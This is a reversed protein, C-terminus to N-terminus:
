MKRKKKCPCVFMVTLHFSSISRHGFCQLTTDHMLASMSFWSSCSQTERKWVLNPLNSSIWLCLLGKWKRHKPVSSATGMKWALRFRPLCSHLAWTSIQISVAIFGPPLGSELDANVSGSWFQCCKDTSLSGVLTGSEDRVCCAYVERPSSKSYDARPRKCLIFPLFQKWILCCTSQDDQQVSTAENIIQHHSLLVPVTGACVAELLADELQGQVAFVLFYSVQCHVYGRPRSDAPGRGQLREVVDEVPQIHPQVHVLHWLLLESKNIEGTKQKKFDMEKNHWQVAKSYLLKKCWVTHQSFEGNQQMSARVELVKREWLWTAAWGVPVEMLKLGLVRTRFPKRRLDPRKRGTCTMPSRHTLAENFFFFKQTQGKANTGWRIRYFPWM